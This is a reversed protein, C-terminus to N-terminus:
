VKLDEHDVIVGEDSSSLAEYVRGVEAQREELTTGAPPGFRRALEVDVQLHEPLDAEVGGILDTVFSRRSLERALAGESRVPSAVRPGVAVRLAGALGIASRLEM